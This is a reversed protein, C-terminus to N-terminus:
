NRQPLKDLRICRDVVNKGDPIHMLTYKFETTTAMNWSSGRLPPMLYVRTPFIADKVSIAEHVQRFSSLLAVPSVTPNKHCAPDHKMRTLTVSLHFWFKIGRPLVHTQKTTVIQLVAANTYIHARSLAM